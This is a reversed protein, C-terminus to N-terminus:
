EYTNILLKILAHFNTTPQHPFIIKQVRTGKEVQGELEIWGWPLEISKSLLRNQTASLGSNLRKVFELSAGLFNNTTLKGMVM